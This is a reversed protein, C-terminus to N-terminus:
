NVPVPKCTDVLTANNISYVTTLIPDPPSSIFPSNMIGVYANGQFQFYVSTIFVAAPLKVSPDLTVVGSTALPSPVFTVPNFQGPVTLSQALTICTTYLTSSTDIQYVIVESGNPCTISKGPNLTFCPPLNNLSLFYFLLLALILGVPLLNNGFCCPFSM